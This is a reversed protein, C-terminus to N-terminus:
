ETPYRGKQLNKTVTDRFEAHDQAGKKIKNELDLLKLNTIKMLATLM